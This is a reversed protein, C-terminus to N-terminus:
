KYKATIQSFDQSPDEDYAELFENILKESNSNGMFADVKSHSMYVFKPNSEINMIVKEIQDLYKKTFSM